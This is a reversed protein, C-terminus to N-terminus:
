LREVQTAHRFKMVLDINAVWPIRVEYDVAVEFGHQGPVVVINDAKAHQISNIQFRRLLLDKLRRANLDSESVGQSLSNVSSRVELYEMYVPLVAFATYVAFGGAGIYIMLSLLGIGWQRHKAQM